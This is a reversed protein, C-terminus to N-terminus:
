GRLLSNERQEYEAVSERFIRLCRRPSNPTAIDIGRVRGSDVLNFVHNQSCNLYTATQAVTMRQPYNALGRRPDHLKPKTLAREVAASVLADMAKQKKLTAKSM